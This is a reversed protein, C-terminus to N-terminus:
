KQHNLSVKSLLDLYGLVIRLQNNILFDSANKIENKCNQSNFFSKQIQNVAEYSKSIKELFFNIPSNSDALNRDCVQLNERWSSHMNCVTYM